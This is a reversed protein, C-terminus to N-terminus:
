AAALVKKKSEKAPKPLYIQDWTHPDLLARYSFRRGICDTVTIWETGEQDEDYGLKIDDYAYMAPPTKTEGNIWDLGNQTLKWKGSNKKDETQKDVPMEKIFGWWRLKAFDGGQATQKWGASYLQTLKHFELDKFYAWWACLTAAMGESLTRRYTATVQGCVKCSNHVGPRMLAAILQVQLVNADGEPKGINEFVARLKEQAKVPISKIKHGKGM